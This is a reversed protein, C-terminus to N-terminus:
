NNADRENKKITQFFVRTYLTGAKASIDREFKISSLKIFKLHRAANDVCKLSAIFGGELVVEKTLISFDSNSSSFPANISKIKVQYTRASESMVKFLESNLDVEQFVKQARRSSKGAPINELAELKSKVDKYRAALQFTSKSAVITLSLGLLIMGAIFLTTKKYMLNEM